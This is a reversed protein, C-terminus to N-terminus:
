IDGPGSLSRISDIPPFCANAERNLCGVGEDTNLTLVVERITRITSAATM